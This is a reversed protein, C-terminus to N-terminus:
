GRPVFSLCSREAFINELSRDSNKLVTGIRYLGCPDPRCSVVELALYGDDLVLWLTRGSHLPTDCLLGLGRTSVDTASAALDHLYYPDFLRGPLHGTIEYSRGHFRSSKTRQLIAMGM